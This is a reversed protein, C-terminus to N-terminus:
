NSLKKLDTGGTTFPRLMLGGSSKDLLEQRFVVLDYASCIAAAAHLLDQCSEAHKSEDIRKDLLEQDIKPQLKEQNTLLVIGAFSFQMGVPEPDLAEVSDHIRDLFKLLGDLATKHEEATLGDPVPRGQLVDNVLYMRRLMDSTRHIEGSPGSWNFLDTPSRLSPSFPDSIYKDHGGSYPM